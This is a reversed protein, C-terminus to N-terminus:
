STSSYNNILTVMEVTVPKGHLTYTATVTVLHGSSKMEFQSVLVVDVMTDTGSSNLSVSKEVEIEHPDDDENALFPAIPPNYDISRIREQEQMVLALVSGYTSQRHTIGNLTTIAALVGLSMLIFLTMSIMVEVLTFGNRPHAVSHVKPQHKSLPSYPM